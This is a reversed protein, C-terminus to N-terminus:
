KIRSLGAKALQEEYSLLQSMGAPTNGNVNTQTSEFTIYENGKKVYLNAGDSFADDGLGSVQKGSSAKAANWALSWAQTTSPDPVDILYTVELMWGTTKGPQHYTYFLCNTETGAAPTQSFPPHSVVGTKPTNTITENHPPFLEALDRSDILNCSSSIGRIIDNSPSAPGPTSGPTAIGGGTVPLGAGTETAAPQATLTSTATVPTKVASCGALVILAITVILAIMLSFVRLSNKGWSM